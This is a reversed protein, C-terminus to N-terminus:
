HDARRRGLDKSVEEAHHCLVAKDNWAGKSIFHQTARIENEDDGHEHLLMTEVSKNKAEGM